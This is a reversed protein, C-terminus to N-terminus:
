YYEGYGQWYKETITNNEEILTSITKLHEAATEAEESKGLKELCTKRELYCQRLGFWDHNRFNPVPRHIDKVFKTQANYEDFFKILSEAIQESEKNFYKLAEDFDEIAAEYFGYERFVCGRDFFSYHGDCIRSLTNEVKHYYHRELDLTWKRMEFLWAFLIVPCVGLFMLIQIVFWDFYECTLFIGCYIGACLIGAFITLLTMKRVNRRCRQKALSRVKDITEETTM